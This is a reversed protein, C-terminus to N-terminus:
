TVEKGYTRKDHLDIIIIVTSQFSGKFEDQSIEPSIEPNGRVDLTAKGTTKSAM